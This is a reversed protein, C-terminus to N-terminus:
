RAKAASFQHVTGTRRALEAECEPHAALWCLAREPVNHRHPGPPPLREAARVAARAEAGARDARLLEPLSRRQRPRVIQLFGFGNMATREFPQPSAADLAAAVAQREARDALTPFDVGISGGIGHRVIAEGVATAAAIALPALPPDGDVDFLTMAPTLSLHLKGGSFAIEGTLAEDLLESWGAAELADPEHPRLLRVPHGSAAIRERLDHGPRPEIDTVAAKAPKIRGRESLAERVIEVNLAAGHAIGPAPRTLAAEGGQELAVIGARADTLRAPCVAGVRPGTAPLEIEAILIRGDEILAARNEGIGEEYLWEAM